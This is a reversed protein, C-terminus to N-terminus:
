SKRAGVFAFVHLGAQLEHNGKKSRKRSKNAELWDNVTDILAEGQQTTFDKFERVKNKPISSVHAYREILPTDKSKITANYQVTSLLRIISHAVHESLYPHEYRIISHLATPLYKGNNTKKLMGLRLLESVIKAAPIVPSERAILSEVTARKGLLKLAKPKGNDAIYARNRFWTHFATGVISAVGPDIAGLAHSKRQEHLEKLAKGVLTEVSKKDLGSDRLFELLALTVQYPFETSSTKAIKSKM